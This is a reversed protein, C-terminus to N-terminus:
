PKITKVSYSDPIAWLFAGGKIGDRNGVVEINDGLKFNINRSNGGSLYLKDYNIVTKFTKLVEKLKKNWKSQGDKAYAAAGIFDDYDLGKRVPLHALEFHPLVKGDMFLATGFGTGLTIVMELGKGQILAFGQLDADNVLRVPKNFLKAIKKALPFQSFAKNDLNAATYVVGSKVFGPFGVAIKDSSPFDKTLTKIAKLLAEPSAKPPTDVKQYDHITDGKSTLITAKVHSGGIDIVLIREKSKAM